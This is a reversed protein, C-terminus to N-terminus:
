FPVIITDGGFLLLLLTVRKIMRKMKHPKTSIKAVIPRRPCVLCRHALRKLLYYYTKYLMYVLEVIFYYWSNLIKKWVTVTQFNFPVRYYKYKGDETHRRETWSNTSFLGNICNGIIM